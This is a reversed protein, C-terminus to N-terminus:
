TPGGATDARRRAWTEPGRPDARAEPVGPHSLVVLDDRHIVERDYGPGFQDVAEATTKGALRGLDRSSFNVLGRAVVTGSPATVQVADGASFEGTVDTVGVALLSTGGSTLADAAGSDVAVDGHPTLAFGIWLRRAELRRAQAVFWTGVPAGVLADGVVGTRRANAVIAHCASLVAVRAAEVKSRMGGSGVFSGTGGVRSLDLDSLDAVREVLRADTNTRPDADFLGDVDSLLLLLDAELMSAVLAALHDNDGYSLEETAVVDNENVLPVAGFDLLRRFTARANLYRQRRVFDDQTLLLQGCILGHDSFQRQYAHVLEGQGVSAASQLAVLDNPRGSLGLPGLGASVAGSSVVVVDTGARHATAVEDALTAIQRRDLSGDDRRLSNSGIKVVVLDPRGFRRDPNVATM